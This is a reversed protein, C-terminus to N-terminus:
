LWRRIEDALARLDTHVTQDPRSLSTQVRIDELRVYNPHCGVFLKKGQEIWKGYEFLVIPCLTEPSFWFMIASAKKMHRYEWEIQPRAPEGMSFNKRRPNLLTLDMDGLLKTIEAQWDWCHTIGGGLFLSKEEGPTYEELAEIYRM